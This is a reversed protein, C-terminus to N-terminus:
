VEGDGGMLVEAVAAGGELLIPVVEGELRFRGVDVGNSRDDTLQLNM